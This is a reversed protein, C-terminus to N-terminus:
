RGALVPFPFFHSVWSEFRANRFHIQTESLLSDSLMKGVPRLLALDSPAAGVNMGPLVPGSQRQADSVVIACKIPIGAQGAPKPPKPADYTKRFLHSALFLVAIFGFFAIFRKM